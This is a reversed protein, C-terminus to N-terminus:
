NALTHWVPYINNLKQLVLRIHIKSNCANQMMVKDDTICKLCKLFCSIISIPTFMKLVEFM